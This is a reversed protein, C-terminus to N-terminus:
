QEDGFAELKPTYLVYRIFCRVLRRESYYKLAQRNNVYMEIMVICFFFGFCMENNLPLKLINFIVNCGHQAVCSIFDKRHMLFVTHSPDQMLLHILLSNLRTSNSM